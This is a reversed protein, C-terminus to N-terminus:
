FDFSVGVGGFTLDRRAEPTKTAKVADRADDSVLCFQGVFAFLGINQTLAYDLRFVLNLAQLGGHYRRTPDGAKAGYLNAYHRHDGLDGFFDVTMTLDELLEFGRRVGVIWYTENFPRHIARVKWYPTLYPNKLSQMVQWDCVTRGGVYGPNTVWQRAIGTTLRWDEALEIDYSYRLLYDAEAYAYRTFRDSTGKSTLASMTWVSADFRGFAGLDIEGDVFQASYPRVNWVYGRCIYASEVDAFAHLSLWKRGEEEEARAGVAAFIAVAAFVVGGLKKRMGM